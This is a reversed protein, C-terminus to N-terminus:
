VGRDIMVFFQGTRVEHLCLRRTVQLSVSVWASLKGFRGSARFDLCLSDIFDPIAVYKTCQFSYLRATSTSRAEVGLM